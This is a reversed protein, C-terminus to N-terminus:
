KAEVNPLMMRSTAMGKYQMKNSREKTMSWSKELKGTPLNASISAMCYQPVFLSIAGNDDDYDRFCQDFNGFEHLNGMLIGSPIKGWSDLVAFVRIPM